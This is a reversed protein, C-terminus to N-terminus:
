FTWERDEGRGFRVTKITRNTFDITFVDFAQEKITGVTAPKWQDDNYHADCTTEISLFNNDIHSDDKHGHGTIHCAIDNTSTTFDVSITNYNYVTKNTLALAIAHIPDQSSHYGYLASDAPVHSIFIFHYDNVDTMHEALWRIQSETVSYNVGWDKEVNSDHSDCSNLMFIRIRVSPIDIYYYINPYELGSVHQEIPRGLYYYLYPNQATFGTTGEVNNHNITFDHNGQVTFFKNRGIYNIYNLLQEASDDVNEKTGYASPFDGGSLVFPVLTSDLLGKLMYKSNKSNSPFHLDTIFPFTISNESESMNNKVDNIKNYIYNDEFYYSPLNLIGSILNGKLNAIEDKNNAIDYILSEKVIYLTTDWAESTQTFIALWNPDSLGTDNTWKPIKIYHSVIPARNWYKVLNASNINKEIGYAINVTSNIFTPVYLYVDENEWDWNINIYTIKWTAEESPVLHLSRSNIAVGDLIDLDSNINEIDSNINEIDKKLEEELQYKDWQGKPFGYHNWLLIIYETQQEIFEEQTLVNLNKNKWDLVLLNQNPVVYETIDLDMAVFANTSSYQKWLFLRSPVTVILSNETSKNIEIKGGAAPTVRVTGGYNVNLELSNVPIIKFLKMVTAINLTESTDEETRTIIFKNYDTKDIKLVGSPTWGIGGIYNGASDFSRRYIKWGKPIKLYVDQPFNIIAPTAIRSTKNAVYDGNGNVDGLSFNEIQFDNSLITEIRRIKDGVIFSNPAKTDNLLTADLDFGTAQYVGGPQWGNNYYYWKGDAIVLYIKNHDPDASTLAAVTSYIGAPSGSAIAEVESKTAKEELVKTLQVGNVDVHESDVALPISESYSGDENELKIYKLKDM